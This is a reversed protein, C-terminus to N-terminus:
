ISGVNRLEQDGAIIDSQGRSRDGFRSRQSEQRKRESIFISTIVNLGSPFDM